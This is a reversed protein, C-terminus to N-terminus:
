PPTGAMGIFQFSVFRFPIIGHWLFHLLIAPAFGALANRELQPNCHRGKISESVEKSFIILILLM